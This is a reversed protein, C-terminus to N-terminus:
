KLVAGRRFRESIYLSFGTRAIQPHHELAFLFEAEVVSLLRIQLSRNASGANHCM